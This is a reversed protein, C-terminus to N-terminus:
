YPRNRDFRSQSERTTQHGSTGSLQKGETLDRLAELQARNTENQRIVKYPIGRFGGRGVRFSRQSYSTPKGERSYIAPKSQPPFPKNAQASQAITQARVQAQTEINNIYNNAQEDPNLVGISTLQIRIIAARIQNNFNSIIEEAEAVANILNTNSM